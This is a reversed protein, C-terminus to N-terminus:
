GRDTDHVANLAEKVTLPKTPIEDEPEVAFDLMRGHLDRDWGLQDVGDALEDHKPLENM